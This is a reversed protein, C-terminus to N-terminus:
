RAAKAAGKLLRLLEAGIKEPAFLTTAQEMAVSRFRSRDELLEAVMRRTEREFEVIDGAPFARCCDPSLVETPGVERSAVIALGHSLAEGVVLSGPEYMSPVLLAHAASYADGIQSHPVQGIFTAIRPNLSPIHAMYDSWQTRDGIVHIEATGALDDLRRSLEVIQDFGKRVSIRSIFLFRIPGTTGATSARGADTVKTKGVPHRLVATRVVNVGYDEALLEVFRSSPGIILDPLRMQRKQIRSRLMLFLRVGYHMLRTESKLAYRSERRHWRLEGAAHSCPHVVVPPLRAIHKGIGFLESQSMQFICGYTDRAHRVILLRGIKDHIYRRTVTGSVFARLPTRSYWRDWRWPNHVVVLSFKSHSAVSVPVDAVDDAYYDVEVGQNLLQEVFIRGMGGVGGGDSIGGIWAIRM